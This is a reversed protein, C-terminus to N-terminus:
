VDQNGFLPARKLEPLAAKMEAAARDLQDKLLRVCHDIEDSDALETSLRGESQVAFFGYFMGLRDFTIWDMVDPYGGFDAPAVMWMGDTSM